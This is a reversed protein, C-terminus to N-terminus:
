PLDTLNLESYRPQSPIPYTSYVLRIQKGWTLDVTQDVVHRLITQDQDRFEPLFVPEILHIQEKPRRSNSGCGLRGLTLLSSIGM